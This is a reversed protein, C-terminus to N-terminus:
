RNKARAVAQEVIAHVEDRGVKEKLMRGHELVATKVLAVDHRLVALEGEVRAFGATMKDELGDMREGFTKEVGNLREGFGDLREGFARFHGRMEELIVSYARAAGARDGANGKKREAVVM